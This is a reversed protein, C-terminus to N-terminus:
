DRLTIPSSGTCLIAMLKSSPGPTQVDDGEVRARRGAQRGAQRCAHMVIRGHDILELSETHWAEEVM